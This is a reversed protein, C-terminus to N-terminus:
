KLDLRDMLQNLHELWASAIEGNGGDKWIEAMQARGRTVRWHKGGIRGM